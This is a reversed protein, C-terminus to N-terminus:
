ESYMYHNKLFLLIPYNLVSPRDICESFVLDGERNASAVAITLGGGAPAMGGSMAAVGSEDEIRSCDLTDIPRCRKMGVEDASTKGDMKVHHFTSSATMTVCLLDVHHCVPYTRSDCIRRMTESACDEACAADCMIVYQSTPKM